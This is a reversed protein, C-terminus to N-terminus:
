WNGLGALVGVVGERGVAATEVVEGTQMVVVLSIMGSHPFYVQEVAAESEQLIAGPLLPCSKLHPAILAFDAPALAALLWNGAKQHSSQTSPAGRSGDAADWSRAAMAEGAYKGVSMEGGSGRTEASESQAVM